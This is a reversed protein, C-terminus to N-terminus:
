CCHAATKGSALGRPGCLQTTRAPTGAELDGEQPLPKHLPVFVGPVSRLAPTGPQGQSGQPKRGQGTGM